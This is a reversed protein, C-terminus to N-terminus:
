QRKPESHILGALNAKILIFPYVKTLYDKACSQVCVYATVLTATLISLDVVASLNGYFITTTAIGCLLEASVDKKKLNPLSKAIQENIWSAKRESEVTNSSVKNSQSAELNKFDKSSTLAWFVVRRYIGSILLAVGACVLALPMDLINLNTWIGGSVNLLKAISTTGAAIWIGSEVSENASRTAALCLAMLTIVLASVPIINRIDQLYADGANNLAEPM